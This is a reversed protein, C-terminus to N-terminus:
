ELEDVLGEMDALYKMVADREVQSYGQLRAIIDKQQSDRSARYKGYSTKGAATFQVTLRNKDYRDKVTTIIGKKVLRQLTQSVAGKTVGLIEAMDTASLGPDLHVVDLLHLESPYLPSGDTIMFPREQLFLFKNIIRM